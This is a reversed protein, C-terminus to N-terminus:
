RPSTEATLRKLEEFWNIVVNIQSGAQEPNTPQVKLFRKGDPSIDYGSVGNPSPLYRGTFLVRPSRASFDPKTQVEVAMTKDGNIYFLERGDRSWVPEVGGDTSVQTRGGPGQFPRVYIETRGSEASQYAIWHGDPSFHAANSNKQFLVPKREGTMPLIWTDAGAVSNEAFYESIPPNFEM